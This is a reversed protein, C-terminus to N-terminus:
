KRVLNPSTPGRVRLVTPCFHGIGFIARRFRALDDIVCCHIIWNREYKTCINFVHCDFHLLLELDLPWLHLDCHSLVNSFFIAFYEIICGRIARNREFKTCVKVMHRKIYWPNELDVPWLDLDCRSTVYWCLFVIIWARILQRLDIQHFSDWLRAFYSVRRELDNPSMNFDSYSRRPNSSQTWIQYLLKMMDCAICQLHELDFILPWPWLTFYHILLLVCYYAISLNLSKLSLMADYNFRFLVSTADPSSLNCHM